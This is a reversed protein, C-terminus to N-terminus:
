LWLASVPTQHSYHTQLQAMLLEATAIADTLAHHPRYRPLGYRTRCADLRLSPRLAPRLSSRLSPHQVRKLLRKYWPQHKGALIKSEIAMTDMLPFELTENFFREVTQALFTREIAHYHVVVVHQKMVDLLEDIYVNFGKATSLDSHTISHITASEGSLPLEPKVLMHRARNCYIRHSDFPVFGISVIACDSADLGTTEIDLSLFPVQDIPTKGDIPLTAYFEKLCKKKAKEARLSFHTAWDFQEDSVVQCGSPLLRKYSQKKEIM